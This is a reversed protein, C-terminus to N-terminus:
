TIWHSIWPRGPGSVIKMSCVDQSSFGTKVCPHSAKLSTCLCFPFQSASSRRYLTSVIPGFVHLQIQWELYSGVNVEIVCGFTSLIPQWLQSYKHTYMNPFAFIWIYPPVMTILTPDHLHLSNALRQVFVSMLSSLPLEHNVNYM